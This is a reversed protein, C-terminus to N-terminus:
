FNHFFRWEDSFVEHSASNVIIKKTVKDDISNIRM